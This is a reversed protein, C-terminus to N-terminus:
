TRYQLLLVSEIQKYCYFHFALHKSIDEFYLLFLLFNRRKENQKTMKAKKHQKERKIDKLIFDRYVPYYKFLFLVFCM